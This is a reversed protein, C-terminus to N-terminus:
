KRQGAPEGASGEGARLVKGSVAGNFRVTFSMEGCGRDTLTVPRRNTFRGFNDREDRNSVAGLNAPLEPFADYNGPPLGTVRYEGADNTRTEFTRGEGTVTVKVGAPKPGEEYPGHEPDGVIRRLRGSRTAGTKATALERLYELDEKADKLHATRTCINTYLKNDETSRYAYVVYSENRLFWYGCDGGGAGSHIEVEYGPAGKYNEPM